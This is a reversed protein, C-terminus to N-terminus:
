STQTAAKKLGDVWTIERKLSQIEFEIIERAWRSDYEDLYESALAKRHDLAEELSDRRLGLIRLQDAPEIRDFFALHALFTDRAGADEEGFANVMERLIEKGVSTIRYVHRSPKGPQEQVTMTIAGMEELRHLAPYLLNNNLRTKSFLIRGIDKRIEYGHRPGESLLALVIMDVM